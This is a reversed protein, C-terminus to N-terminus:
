APQKKLVRTLANRSFTKGRLQVKNSERAYSMLPKRRANTKNSHKRSQPIKQKAPVEIEISIAAAHTSIYASASNLIILRGRTIQFLDVTNEHSNPFPHFSLNIESM